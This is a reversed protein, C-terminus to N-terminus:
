PRWRYCLVPHMGWPSSRGKAGSCSSTTMLATHEVRTLNLCEFFASCVCTDKGVGDFVAHVGEGKTIELVREVVNEDKYLIVHDAGHSKALAAKEKTSTTGIVIAGRAKLLQAFQLGLGGAITHVLIYDGKQVNYSETIFTLATLGQTLVGATTRLSVSDPIPYVM